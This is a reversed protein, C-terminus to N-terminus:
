SIAQRGSTRPDIIRAREELDHAVGLWFQAYYRALQSVASVRHPPVAATLKPLEQTGVANLQMLRLLLRGQDNHRMSPDHSLKELVLALVQPVLAAAPQHGLQTAQGPAGSQSRPRAATPDEGHQLRKRVDWATAPSVGAGRAVERASAEPHEAILAAARLRGELNNLPRVRGDKGVRANMQRAVGTSQRRITAVTTAALGAVDAIARDSMHPHSAIIRTAAARRDRRSLPFGHTVNARVALLFADAPNGDFFEVEITEQGRLSAAMLRHMGDIVRMTRREVLIPPLQAQSEVLRATHARDEGALRPTDGPRLSLLPVTVVQRREEKVSEAPASPAARQAPGIPAMDM